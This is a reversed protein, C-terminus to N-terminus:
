VLGRMRRRDEGGALERAPAIDGEPVKRVHQRGGGIDSIPTLGSTAFRHRWTASQGSATMSVLSYVSRVYGATGRLNRVVFLRRLLGGGDRCRGQRAALLRAPRAVTMRASRSGTHLRLPLI